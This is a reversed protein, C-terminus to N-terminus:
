PNKDLSSPEAKSKRRYDQLIQGVTIILLLAFVSGTALDVTLDPVQWGLKQRLIYQIFSSPVNQEGLQRKIDWHWDTLFCYGLGYFYGLGLWSLTTLLLTYRQWARTRQPIWGFVNVGIVLLHFTFLLSDLALLLVRSPEM